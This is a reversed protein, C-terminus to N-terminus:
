GHYRELFERWHEVSRRDFEKLLTASANDFSTGLAITIKRSIEDSSNPDAWFERFVWSIERSVVVPVDNMVFDAAVINFTESYAVQLGLDMKRVLHIFDHRGLWPHEFLKHKPLAAFLLRINRLIPEAGCEVRASNIHFHLSVSAREAYKIAAIAQILQNKLPRIAGFCGIVIDRGSIRAPQNRHHLHPPYYNPQYPVTARKGGDAISLMELERVTRMDNCSVEVHRHKMYQLIWSLAMGEHALFPMASHNRVIWRVHPHLKVLVDFKKPEVWIAEIIVIKPRFLTVERDIDNNDHVVVLKSDQGLKERLMDSVFTASNFLGTSPGGCYGFKQKKLIFLVRM